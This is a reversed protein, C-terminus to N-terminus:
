RGESRDPLNAKMSPSSEPTPRFVDAKIEPPVLPHQEVIKDVRYHKDFLTPSSHRLFRWAAGPNSCEVASAAGRRIWCLSGGVGAENALRKFSKYYTWKDYGPWILAREPDWDIFAKLRETTSPRLKRWGGKGTKSEVVWLWGSRDFDAVGLIRMDGARIGTEWDVLIFTEWWDCRRLGTRRIVGRMRTAHEVLSTIDAQDYGQISLRRLRVDQVGKPEALLGLRAACRWLCMIGTRRAKVTYDSRRNVFQHTLFRNVTDANLDGITAPRALFQVFARVVSRIYEETRPALPANIPRRSNREDLYTSVFDKLLVSENTM